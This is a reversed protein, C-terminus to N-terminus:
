FSEADSTTSEETTELEAPVWRVLRYKIPRFQEPVDQEVLVEVAALGEFNTSTVLVSYVWPQSTETELPVRSVNTLEMFGALMEDMVNGALIQARSEEAADTANRDALSMVEGIVALSGALIALSLVVELLTFAKRSLPRALRRM